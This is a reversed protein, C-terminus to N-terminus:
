NNQLIIFNFIHCLFFAYLGVSSGEENAEQPFSADKSVPVLFRGTGEEVLVPEIVQM